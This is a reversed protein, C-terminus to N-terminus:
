YKSNSKEILHSNLIDLLNDIDYPKPIFDEAGCSMATQKGTDSASLVIMPINTHAVNSKLSSIIRDGSIGPMWLDILLLDPMENLFIQEANLSDSVAIVEFGADELIMQTVDLIDIEDDCIMIKIAM